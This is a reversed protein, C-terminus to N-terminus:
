GATGIRAARSRQACRRRRATEVQPAEPRDHLDGKLTARSGAAICAAVRAPDCGLSAAAHVANFEVVAWAGSTLRGVDVIWARPLRVLPLLQRVLPLADSAEAHGRYTAATEIRGDLVFVRVEAEFEVVDAALVPTEPCTLSHARLISTPDDTIQARFLKPEVPKVFLRRPQRALGALTDLWVHRQLLAWPLTALVEDRPALLELGLLQALTRCFVDPGYLRAREPRPRARWYRDISRVRGGQGRWAAVVASELWPARRPVVLVLGALPMDLACRAADPM